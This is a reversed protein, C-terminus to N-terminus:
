ADLAEECAQLSKFVADALMRKFMCWEGRRTMEFGHNFINSLTTPLVLVPHEHKMLLVNVILRGM